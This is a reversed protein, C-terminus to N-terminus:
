NAAPKLLGSPYQFIQQGKSPYLVPPLTTRPNMLHLEWRHQFERMARANIAEAKEVSSPFVKTPEPIPVAKAARFLTKLIELVQEPNANTLDFTFVRNTSAASSHEDVGFLVEPNLQPEAGLGTLASLLLPGLFLAVMKM